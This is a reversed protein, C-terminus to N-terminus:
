PGRRCFARPKPRIGRPGPADLTEGIMRLLWVRSSRVMDFVPDYAIVFFEEPLKHLQRRYPKRGESLSSVYRVLLRRFLPQLLHMSQTDKNLM